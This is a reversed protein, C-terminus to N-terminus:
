TCNCTSTSLNKCWGRSHLSLRGRTSDLVRRSEDLSEIRHREAVQTLTIFYQRDKFLKSSCGGGKSTVQNRETSGEECIVLLKLELWICTVASHSYQLIPSWYGRGRAYFLMRVLGSWSFLLLEPVDQSKQSLKWHASLFQPDHM